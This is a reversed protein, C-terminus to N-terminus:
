QAIFTLEFWGEAAPEGNQMALRTRVVLETETLSMVDLVNDSDWVGMFSVDPLIIQDVGGTGTGELFQFEGVPPDYDEAMYGNWPNVTQGNNRYEFLFDDFFFCYADDYQAAQLGDQPSTYWSFDGYQPGVKVAGGANTFVWCKGNVGCGGTLLALKPSCELPADKVITVQQSASATGTGDSKSVFLSITYVGQDSYFITDIAESSTKPAGGPLNWLRQFNGDSLDRIVVRNSDSALVEVSFAPAVPSPGVSHDDDRQPDCATICLLIMPLVLWSTVQMSHKGSIFYATKM